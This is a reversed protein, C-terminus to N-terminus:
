SCDFKCGNCDSSVLHQLRIGPEPLAVPRKSGADPYRHHRVLIDGHVVAPRHLVCLEDLRYARAYDYEAAPDAQFAEVAEDASDVAAAKVARRRRVATHASQLVCHLLRVLEVEVGLQHLLELAATGGRDDEVIDGDSVLVLNGQGCCGTGPYHRSQPVNGYGCSLWCSWYLYVHLYQFLQAAM